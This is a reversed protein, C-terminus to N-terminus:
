PSDKTYKQAMTYTTNGNADGTMKYCYIITGSVWECGIEFQSPTQANDVNAWTVPLFLLTKIFGFLKSMARIFVPNGNKFANFIVSVPSTGSPLGDMRLNSIAYTSASLDADFVYPLRPLIGGLADNIANLERSVVGNQVPNTSTTNLESDVTLPVFNYNTNDVLNNAM